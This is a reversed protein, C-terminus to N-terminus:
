VPAIRRKKDPHGYKLRRYSQIIARRNGAAIRSAITSHRERVMRVINKKMCWVAM